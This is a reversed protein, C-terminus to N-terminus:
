PQSNSLKHTVAMVPHWKLWNGSGNPCRRGWLFGLGVAWPAVTLGGRRCGVSSGLKGPEGARRGQRGQCPSSGLKGKPGLLLKMLDQEWRQGKWTSLPQYCCLAFCLAAFAAWGGDALQSESQPLCGCLCLWWTSWAGVSGERPSQFLRLGEQFFYGLNLKCVICQISANIQFVFM